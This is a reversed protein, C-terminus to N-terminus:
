TISHPQLVGKLVRYAGEFFNFLGSFNFFFSDDLLDSCIHLFILLGGALIFWDFLGLGFRLLWFVEGEFIGVDHTGQGFLRLLGLLSLWGGGLLVDSAIQLVALIVITFVIQTYIGFM